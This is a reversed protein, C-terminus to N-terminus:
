IMQVIVNYQKIEANEKAKGFPTFTLEDMSKIECDALKKDQTKGAEFMPNYIFSKTMPNTVMWNDLTIPLNLKALAKFLDGITADFSVPAQVNEQGQATGCAVCEDRRAVPVADFQGYIGNYNVYPPDMAAGIPKGAKAFIMKLIEQSQIASIVANVSQIAPIKHGIIREVDESNFDGGFTDFINKKMEALEEPSMTAQQEPPTNEDLVRARLGELETQAFATTEKMDEHNDVDPNRNYKKIFQVEGRIACHERTRPIGKLTCAAVQNQPPPPVPVVCRYCPTHNMYKQPNADLETAAEIRLQEMVPDIRTAKIADIKEQLAEIDKQANLFGAYKEEDLAYTMNEVIQDLVKERNGYAVPKGTADKTTEPIIVQVHGEFGVTGGEICPIGLKICIKNLDMRAQVNDLAMVCVDCEKYKELPVKQLPITYVETEMYSNMLKLREAAKAAKYSGEDGKYFLMQRSLNSTEIKDMDCLILKGIGMLALDKGIECGLAGVGAIFVCANKIVSQDWGHILKQRKTRDLEEQTLAKVQKQAPESM